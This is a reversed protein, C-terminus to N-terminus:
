KSLKRAIERETRYYSLLGYVLSFLMIPALDFALYHYITM